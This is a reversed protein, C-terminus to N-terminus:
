LGGLQYFFDRVGHLCQDARCTQRSLQLLSGARRQTHQECKYNYFCCLNSSYVICTYLGFQIDMCM